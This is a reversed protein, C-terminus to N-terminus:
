GRIIKLKFPRGQFFCFSVRLIEEVHEIMSKLLPMANYKELLLFTPEDKPRAFIAKGKGMPYVFFDPYEQRKSIEAFYIDLGTIDRISLLRRHKSEIAAEGLVTLLINGNYPQIQEFFGKQEDTLYRLRTKADKKFASESNAIVFQTVRENLEPDNLASLQFTMYDLTTRLSEMIQTVLLRPSGAVDSERPHRLQIVANDTKYDFGKVMGKVYNYLFVNLEHGLSM